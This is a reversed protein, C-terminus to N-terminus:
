HHQRAPSDGTAPEPVDLRALEVAHQHHTPSKSRTSADSPQLLPSIESTANAPVWKYVVQNKDIKIRRYEWDGGAMKVPGKVRASKEKKPKEKKTPACCMCWVEEEDADIDRSQPSSADTKKEGLHVEVSKVVDVWIEDIKENIRRRASGAIKSLICGELCRFCAMSVIFTFYLWYAFEVVLILGFRETAPDQLLPIRKHTARPCGYMFSVTLNFLVIGWAPLWFFLWGALRRRCQVDRRVDQVLKIPTKKDVQRELVYAGLRNKVLTPMATVDRKLWATREPPVTFAERLDQKLEHFRTHLADIVQGQVEDQAHDVVVTILKNIRINRLIAAAILGLFLLVSLVLTALGFLCGGFNSPKFDPDHVIEAPMLHAHRLRPIALISACIWLLLMLFLFGCAPCPYRPDWGCMGIPKPADVEVAVDVDVMDLEVHQLNELGCFKKFDRPSSTLPRREVTVETPAADAGAPQAAKPTEEQALEQFATPSLDVM